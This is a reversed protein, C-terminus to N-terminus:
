KKTFKSKVFILISGTILFLSIWKSIRGLYDGHNVYFTLKDNSKISYRLADQMDYNNRLLVDGRQNLFGSIGTNAARAVSRRTEIARLRAYALHQTHGPTNGWWGDNTIIFIFNAGNKVYEGVYEGFISEYCIVPAAGSKEKNYFVTRETQTGLSGTIGGMNISYKEIWKFLQPYPMQEVGPVLKSKHYFQLRKNNEIKVATNFYDYWGVGEGYRATTSKDFETMYIKYTDVGTILTLNPYKALFQRLIKIHLQDNMLDEDFGFPMSTEPWALFRTQQTLKSQSLRLLRKLQEDHPIFKESGTFKELYADINPQVVVIETEDGKETYFFYIGLSLICPTLLAIVLLVYRRLNTVSLQHSIASFMLINIILIWATGGLIGTYEYWQVFYHAFAFCNGLNLWTWTLDWNLHIYEFSLWFFLLSFNSIAVSAIPNFNSVKLSKQVLRWLMLPICMLLANLIIALSAGVLTSNVIWWCSLINWIFLAFYSYVFFKRNSKKLGIISFHENLLLIPIFGIFAFFPYIYWAASLLLGCIISLLIPNSRIKEFM